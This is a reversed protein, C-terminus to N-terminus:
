RVAEMAAATAEAHAGVEGTVIVPATRIMRAINERVWEQAIRTSEEASDRNTFVSVSTVTNDGGDVAYYAVFGRLRRMQPVFDANVRQLMKRAMGEHTNYRRIVAYM